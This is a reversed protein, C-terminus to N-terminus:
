SGSSDPLSEETKLYYAKAESSLQGFTRNFDASLDDYDIIHVNVTKPAQAVYPIGGSVTIIVHMTDLAEPPPENRM